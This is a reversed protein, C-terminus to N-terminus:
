IDHLDLDAMEQMAQKREASRRARYDVVHGVEIRRHRGVMRYPLDKGLLRKILFPRSVNLMDAAEQTTLEAGRPMLEVNHGSAIHDLLDALHRALTPLLTISRTEGKKPDEVFRLEFPKGDERAHAHLVASLQAAATREIESPLREDASRAAHSSAHM